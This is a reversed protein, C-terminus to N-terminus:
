VSIDIWTYNADSGLESIQVKISEGTSIETLETGVGSPAKPLIRKIVSAM